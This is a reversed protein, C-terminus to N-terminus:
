GKNVHKFVACYFVLYTICLGRLWWPTLEGLPIFMAFIGIIHYSVILPTKLDWILNFLKFQMSM